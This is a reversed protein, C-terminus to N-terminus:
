RSKIQNISDNFNDLKGALALMDEEIKKNTIRAYVQTTRINTHGLMKSVSEIPVGKSLIMTAFTHRALHYTLNKKIGCVDGIEKLYSNMKQNSLIPLLKGDKTRGRYKEIIMAPIDLLLINSPVKTKQRTTMIWQKGNLTVINDQTLNAVDIYALGCFCSFIFIDRVAELRVTAFEKEMICKIEEDTLFGRDVYETQFHHNMFPDHIIFGTRQAHKVVTKFFKLTKTSSNVKLNAVTRLYIEFDSIVLHTLEKPMLDKRRYKYRLFNEFHRKTGLYKYYTAKTKVTGVQAQLEELFGDYYELFTTKIKDKGLYISKIKELTLDDDKEYRKFIEQFSTSIEDLQANICLAEQTRGKMRSTANCWLKKDVNLGSSGVTLMERNLYIRIMLPSKGQKNEYNSRVYYSVKFIMRM